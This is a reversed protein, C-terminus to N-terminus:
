EDDDLDDFFDDDDSEGIMDEDGIDDSIDDEVIDEDEIDDDEDAGRKPAPKRSKAPKSDSSEGIVKEYKKKLEDYSKFSSEASFEALKHRADLIEKEKGYSGLETEEDSFSSADYNTMKGGKKKASFKFNVGCNEDWPQKGDEIVDDIKEMIKAGFKFIFVKGNNEPKNADDIILVNTYFSTAKKRDYYVENDTEYYNNAYLDECVPCEKGISSPCNDIFWGGVDNFFHAKLEAYPMDIDPSDLFRMTVKAQNNDNFTPVYLRDDNKFKKKRDKIKQNIGSWDKKFTKKPM